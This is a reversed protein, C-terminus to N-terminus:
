PGCHGELAMLVIPSFNEHLLAIDIGKPSRGARVRTKNQILSQGFSNDVRGALDQDDTV